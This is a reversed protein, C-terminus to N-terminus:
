SSSETPSSSSTSRQIRPITSIGPGRAAVTYGIRNLAADLEEIFQQQALEPHQNFLPQALNHAVAHVVATLMDKNAMREPAALILDSTHLLQEQIEFQASRALSDDRQYHDYVNPDSLEPSSPM